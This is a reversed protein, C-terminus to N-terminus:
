VFPGACPFFGSRPVIRAWVGELFPVSRGRREDLEKVLQLLFGALAAQRADLEKLIVAVLQVTRMGGVQFRPYVFKPDLKIPDIVPEEVEEM